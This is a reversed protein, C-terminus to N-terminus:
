RLVQLFGNYSKHLLIDHALYYYIGDPINATPWDGKYDNSYYVISGFRNYIYLEYPRVVSSSLLFTENKGDNNPTLLNPIFPTCDMFTVSVSDSVSFCQNSVAVSYIGTKSVEIEIESSQINWYITNYDPQKNIILPVVLGECSVSDEPMRLLPEQIVQVSIQDEVHCNEVSKAILRYIGGQSVVLKQDTSGNSWLYSVFLDPGSIEMQEGECILTDNIPTIIEAPPLFRKVQVSDEWVGCPHFAELRFFGTDRVQITSAQEGTSWKYEKFGNPGPLNVIFEAQHCIVTDTFSSPPQPPQLSYVNITDSLFGCGFDGRVWYKGPSSVTISRTTEGTSWQYHDFGEQAVLELMFPITDCFSTDDPLEMVLGDPPAITVSVDDIYFRSRHSAAAFPKALHQYKTEFNDKFNGITLYREGGEAIFSATFKQYNITDSLMHGAPNEVQPQFQTLTGKTDVYFSDKSFYVGLGDSSYVQGKSTEMSTGLLMFYFSIEYKCDAKLTDLLPVQAYSRREDTIDGYPDWAFSEIMIFAEGSRPNYWKSNPDYVGSRYRTCSRYYLVDSATAQYWFHVGGNNFYSGPLNPRKCTSYCPDTSTPFPPKLCSDYEEFGPNPM